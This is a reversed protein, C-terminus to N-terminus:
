TGRRVLSTVTWIIIATSLFFLGIIALVVSGFGETVLYSFDGLAYYGSALLFAVGPIGYLMLPHRFTALKLTTFLVDLFHLVMNTKSPNPVDYTVLVPIQTITLGWSKAETLIEMDVAMGMESPVLKQLVDGRYARFGSQSDLKSFGSLILNGAARTAPIGVRGGIVIDAKTLGDLLRPIDAPDHQGDADITVVATAKMEIAKLFLDRLAVGKGQNIEHRIVQAGLREAIKGTADTSGDDCVIIKDYGFNECKLIIKAITAEENYAPILVINV